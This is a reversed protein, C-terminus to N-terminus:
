IPLNQLPLLLKYSIGKKEGSFKWFKPFWNFVELSGDNFKLVRIEEHSQPPEKSGRGQGRQDEAETPESM